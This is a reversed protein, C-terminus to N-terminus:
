GGNQGQGDGAATISYNKSVSSQSITKNEDGSKSAAVDSAAKKGERM